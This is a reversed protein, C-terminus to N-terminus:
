EITKLRRQRRKIGFPAIPVSGGMNMYPNQQQQQQQMMLYQMMQPNQYPNSPGQADYFGRNYPNIVVDAGPTEPTKSDLGTNILDSLMTDAADTSIIGDARLQKIRGLKTEYTGKDYDQTPYFKNYDIIDVMGAKGPDIDFHPYLTNLNYTKARNTERNVIQRRISDNAQRMANDYNEETLNVKDAYDSMATKNAQEFQNLIQANRTQADGYLQINKNDTEAQVNAMQSMAEGQAKAVVAASRKPGAFSRATDGAQAALEAIKAYQRKPDVYMPDVLTPEFQTLTPYRKKIGFKDLVAASLNINDQKWYDPVKAEYKKDVPLNYKPLEEEAEPTYKSTMYTNIFNDGALGDIGSLTGEAGTNDDQQPGTMNMNLGINQFGEEYMPMRGMSNLAVHANQVKEIEDNNLGSEDFDTENKLRDIAQNYKDNSGDWEGSQFYDEEFTNHMLSKIKNDKVLLDDIEKKQDTNLEEEGIQQAYHSYFAERLKKNRDDSWNAGFDTISPNEIETGEDARPIFRSLDGGFRMMPAAAPQAMAQPAPMMQQPPPGQQPMMSQQPPAGVPPGPPMMEQQPPAQNTEPGGIFAQLIKFKEDDTPEMQLSQTAMKEKTNLQDITKAYKTPDIGKEKLYPYAAVPVGEEFGKKAEQIFALHSLKKKNKDLMYEATDNAIHDSQPDNLIESYKNLPFKKSVWAPTKKKNEHVNMEAMEDKTLKMVRTDSYIFSQDPLDLPTGGEHHRKGGITYLEFSGDFNLDTLVTEGKEAEINSEERKDPGLTNQVKGASPFFPIENDGEGGNMFQPFTVLGFKYQDGTTFGGEKVSKIIKGNSVNYGKPLKNIRVKKKM